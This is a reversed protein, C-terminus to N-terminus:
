NRAASNASRWPARALGSLVRKIPDKLPGFGGLIEGLLDIQADDIANRLALVAEIDGEVRLDRSFFLADGDFDGEVLGVLGALPGCIRVDIRAPLARVATLTPRAPQPELVFAFPLDSVGIGYRKEAYPGLREFIGPHRRLIRQLLLALMPQLPLLPLPRLALSLLPPLTPLTSHSSLM